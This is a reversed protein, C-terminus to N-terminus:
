RARAASHCYPCEEDYPDVDEKCEPCVVKKKYLAEEMDEDFPIIERVGGRPRDVEVAEIEKRRSSIIIYVLIALVIVIFLVAALIYAWTEM